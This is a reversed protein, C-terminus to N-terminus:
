VFAAESVCPFDWAAWEFLWFKGGKTESALAAYLNYAQSLTLNKQNWRTASAKGEVHLEDYYLYKSTGTTINLFALVVPAVESTPTFTIRVYKMSTKTINSMTGFQCAGAAVPTDFSGIGTCIQLPSYPLQKGNHAPFNRIVYEQTQNVLSDFWFDM